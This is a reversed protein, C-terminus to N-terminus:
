KAGGELGLAKLESVRVHQILEQKPSSDRRLYMGATLALLAAAAVTLRTRWGSVRRQTKAERRVAGVIRAELDDSPPASRRLAEGLAGQELELKAFAAGCEACAEVHERATGAEAEPLTGLALDLLREPIPHTM